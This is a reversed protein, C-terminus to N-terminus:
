FTTILMNSLKGVTASKFTTSGGDVSRSGTIITRGIGDGLLMINRLGKGIEVNERYTGAKVYIVYRGSGSRKGAAAVADGVTRFNGSGDQAVVVNARPTAAQLLRRDGPRVWGPFGGKYGAKSSKSYNSDGKNLALTNSLLLSVNNSMIPFMNYYDKIGFEEFGAVCTDLNTLGTSLWTQVDAATCKTTPDLTKNLRHITEEYLAVCDAWAARERGSRCKPGLQNLNNQAHMCRDLALQSSLKLFDPKGNISINYKPNNALFYECPLPNPTQSCWSKIAAHSYGCIPSIFLFSMFILVLVKTAM